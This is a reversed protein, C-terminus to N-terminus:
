PGSSSSSSFFSSMSSSSSFFSSSSPLFSSSSSSFSSSSSSGPNPDPDPETGGGGSDEGLLYQQMYLSLKEPQRPFLEGLKVLTLFLELQLGRRAVRKEEQTTTKAGTSAESAAYIALWSDRLATTTATLPAGLDAEHAIVANLLTDLHNKVADDRSDNFVSRGQPVAETVEPSGDGYQATFAAVIKAVEGSLSERFDNKAQKRAKRLGLKTQDDTFAADFTALATTTAAIRATLDGGPNNASMRELHDTSFAALEAISVGKADFPNTLYTTLQRM